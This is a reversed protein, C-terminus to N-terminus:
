RWDPPRTSQERETEASRSQATWWQTSEGSPLEARNAVDKATSDSYLDKWKDGLLFWMAYVCVATGVPVSMAALVGGIIGALRAWSKRKLLAYGAVVSPATFVLQFVLMFALFFIFFQPPPGPDSPRAPISTFLFFMMLGIILMMFLQFGAYVLFSIGLYKNHQETTM